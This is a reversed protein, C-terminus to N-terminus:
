KRRPQGVPRLALWSGTVAIVILLVLVAVDLLWIGSSHRHAFDCVAHHPGPTAVTGNCGQGNIADLNASSALASYGWRSGNLFGLQNLVPTHALNFVAGTLLFQAFLVVPLLTLAKDANEVLSSILLGLAMAALGTLTVTVLVEFRGSPLLAGHGPGGQRAIGLIVLIVSQIITLGGLVIVKSLVYASPSLGIARERVLIPREKVIERISNAAGLYTVGLILGILVTAATARSLPTQVLNDHGFVLFM